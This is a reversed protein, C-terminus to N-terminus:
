KEALEYHKTQNLWDLLLQTDINYEEKKYPYDKLMATIAGGLVQSPTYGSDGDRYVYKLDMKKYNKVLCDLTLDNMSFALHKAIFVGAYGKVNKVSDYYKCLIIVAKKENMRALSAWIDLKNYETGNEESCESILKWLVPISKKIQALGLLKYCTANYFVRPSDILAAIYKKATSNFDKEKLMLLIGVNYLQKENLYNRCLIEVVQERQKQTEAKKILVESLFHICVSKANLTEDNMYPDTIEIVQMVSANDSINISEKGSLNILNPTHSNLEILKKLDTALVETRVAIKVQGYGNIFDFAALVIVILIRIM